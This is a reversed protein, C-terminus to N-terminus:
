HKVEERQCQAATNIQDKYINRQTLSFWKSGLESFPPIWHLHVLHPKWNCFWKNFSGGQLFVQNWGHKLSGKSCMKRSQYGFKNKHAKEWNISAKKFQLLYRSPTKEENWERGDRLCSKINWPLQLSQLFYKNISM